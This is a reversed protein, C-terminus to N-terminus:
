RKAYRRLMLEYRHCLQSIDAAFENVGRCDDALPPELVDAVLCIASDRANLLLLVQGQTKTPRKRLLPVPSLRKQFLDDTM